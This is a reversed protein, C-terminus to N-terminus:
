ITDVALEKSCRCESLFQQYRQRLESHLRKGREIESIRANSVGLRGAIEKQSIGLLIRADALEAGKPYKTDQPHLLASYVERAVYRKLCRMIERKAKGESTRREIYAATRPDSRMRSVVISWLMMQYPLMLRKPYTVLNSVIIRMSSGAVAFRSNTSTFTSNRHNNCLKWASLWSIERYNVM